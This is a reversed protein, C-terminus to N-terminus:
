HTEHTVVQSHSSSNMQIRTSSSTNKSGNSTADISLNVSTNGDPSQITQETTGNAPVQVTQGNVELKTNAKSDPTQQQNVQVRTVPTTDSSVPPLIKAKVIPAPLSTVQSVERSYHWWATLLIITAVIGIICFQRFLTSSLARQITAGKGSKTIQRTSM